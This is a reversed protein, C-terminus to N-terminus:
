AIGWRQAFDPNIESVDFQQGEIPGKDTYQWMAWSKWPFPVSPAESRYHAVWLEHGSFDATGFVGPWWGASTYIMPRRATAKEIMDLFTQVAKIRQSPSLFSWGDTQEIDAVLPLDIPAGKVTALFHQAQLTSNQSPKFFHYAGVKMGAIHAARVNELFKPDVMTLGESAKVHVCRVNAAKRVAAFDVDGNHHSVDIGLVDKM